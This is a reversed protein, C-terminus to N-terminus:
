PYSSSITAPGSPSPPVPSLPNKVLIGFFIFLEEFTLFKSAAVVSEAPFMSSIETGAKVQFIIRAIGSPSFSKCRISSFEIIIAAHIGLM